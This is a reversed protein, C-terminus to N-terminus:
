VCELCRLASVCSRAYRSLDHIREVCLTSSGRELEALNRDSGFRGRVSLIRDGLGTGRTSHVESAQLFRGDAPVPSAALQCIQRSFHNCSLGGRPFNARRCCGGLALGYESACRIGAIDDARRVPPGLHGVPCTALM